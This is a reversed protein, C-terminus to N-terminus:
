PTQTATATDMPILSPATPTSTGSGSVIILVYVEDGFFIGNATAMRWNGLFTGASAPATLDVSLEVEAGSNVTRGLTLSSGGIVEGGIFALKFGSEWACSGSNRVSWTKTFSAGPNMTTNDPINVGPVFAMGYCTSTPAVGPTPSMATGPTVTMSPEPSVFESYERAIEEGVDPSHISVSQLKKGFAEVVKTIADTSPSPASRSGFLVLLFGLFVHLFISKFLVKM